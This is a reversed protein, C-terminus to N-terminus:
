LVSMSIKKKSKTEEKQDESGRVQDEASGRTITSGARMKSTRTPMPVPSAM